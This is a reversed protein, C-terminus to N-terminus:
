WGGFQFVLAVLVLVFLVCAPVVNCGLGVLELGVFLTLFQLWIM